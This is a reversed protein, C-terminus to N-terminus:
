ATILPSIPTGFQNDIKLNSYNNNSNNLMLLLLEVKLVNITNLDLLLWRRGIGIREQNLILLTRNLDNDIMGNKILRIGEMSGLHPSPSLFPPYLGQELDQDRWHDM